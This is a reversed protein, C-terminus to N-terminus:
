VWSVSNNIGAPGRSDIIRYGQMDVPVELLVPVRGEGEEGEDAEEEEGFERENIDPAKYPKLLRLHKIKPVKHTSSSSASKSRKKVTKKSPQVEKPLLISEIFGGKILTERASKYGKGQSPLSLPPLLPPPSFIHPNSGRHNHIYILVINM